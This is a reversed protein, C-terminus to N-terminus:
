SGNLKVWTPTLKIEDAWRCTRVMPRIAYTCILRRFWPFAGVRFMSGDKGTALARAVELVYPGDGRHVHPSGSWLHLPPWGSNTQHDLVARSLNVLNPPRAGCTRRVGTYARLM